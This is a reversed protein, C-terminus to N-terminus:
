KRKREEDLYRDHEDKSYIEYYGCKVKYYFPSMYKWEKNVDIFKSKELIQNEEDTPKITIMTKNKTILYSPFVKLSLREVPL